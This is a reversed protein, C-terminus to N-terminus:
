KDLAYAATGFAPLKLKLASKTIKQDGAGFLGKLKIGDALETLKLTEEASTDASNACILYRGTTNNGCLIAHINGGDSKLTRAGPEMLAPSLVKFEAILAKIEAATAPHNGAGEAGTKDGTEKWCYWIVGRAGHIISLYSLSRVHAPKEHHRENDGFSQPVAIIPKRFDTSARGFDMTNAMRAAPGEGGYYFPYVDLALVDCAASLERMENNACVLYTPHDEDESHYLDNVKKLKPLASSSPEDAIYWMGLAPSGKLKRVVERYPADNTMWGDDKHVIKGWLDPEYIGWIGAQALAATTEPTADWHWWQICNVGLDLVNPLEKPSVHYIGLPFFPKGDKLIVTDQDVFIQGPRVPVIKLTAESKEVRGAGCDATATIRYDGAPADASLELVVPFCESPTKISKTDLTKGKADAITITVPIGEVNGYVPNFLVQVHANKDRRATSLMGRYAPPLVQFFPPTEFSDVPISAEKGTERNRLTFKANVNAHLDILGPIDIKFQQKPKTAKAYAKFTRKLTGNDLSLTAEMTLNTETANKIIITTVGRGLQLQKKGGYEHDLRVFEAGISSLDPKPPPDAFGFGAAILTVAIIFRGRLTM